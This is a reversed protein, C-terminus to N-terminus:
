DAHMTARRARAAVQSATGTRALPLLTAAVHTATEVPLPLTAELLARAQPLQVRGALMEDLLVPLRRRLTDIMAVRDTAARHSMGLAAAVEAATFRDVEAADGPQNHLDAPTVPCGRLRQLHERYEAQRRQRLEHVALLAWAQAAAAVATAVEAADVLDADELPGPGLVTLETLARTPDLDDFM